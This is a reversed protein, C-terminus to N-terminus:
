EALRAGTSTLSYLPGCEVVHGDEIVIGDDCHQVTSRRHSIVIITLTGRVAQRLAAVIASESIGDVASTAEDLILIEPRRVLARALAVRQRQGGSLITGRPGVLTNYGDPLSSIFEHANALRAAAEIEEMSAGDKGYAINYAVTGELLDLDQGALAVRALWESPRVTGLPQGDVLIRGSAPEFLRCLLNVITSKGAGSPGLLAVARGKRITFSANRLVLRDADDGHRYRFSVNEFVLQDRFGAFAASGAPGPPKGAPDLLWEVEQLPGAYAQLRTHASAILLVHPQMRYLLVLFAAMTGFSYGARWTGMLIGAFLLTQLVEVTPPIRTTIKDVAFHSRRVGASADEFRQMEERQRGFARVLRAADITELM